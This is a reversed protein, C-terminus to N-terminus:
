ALSTGILVAAVEHRVRAWENCAACLRNHKGESLFTGQCRLCAIRLRGGPWANRSGTRGDITVSM